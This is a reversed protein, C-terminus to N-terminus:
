QKDHNKIEVYVRKRKCMDLHMFGAEYKYSSQKDYTYSAHVVVTIDSYVMKSLLPREQM